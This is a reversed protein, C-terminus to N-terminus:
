FYIAFLKQGQKIKTTTYGQLKFQFTFGRSRLSHYRDILLNDSDVNNVVFINHLERDSNCSAFTGLMFADVM